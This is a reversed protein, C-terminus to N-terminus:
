SLLDPAETQVDRLSFLLEMFRGILSFEIFETKWSVTQEM